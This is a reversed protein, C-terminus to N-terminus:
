HISRIPIRCIPSYQSILAVKQVSRSYKQFVMVNQTLTGTKDSFLHTVLGLEENIDSTNCVARIDREEDYLDLDWGFLMSACFKQVEISVYMSIPIIYNYLVLWVLFINFGSQFNKKYSEGLYWHNDM